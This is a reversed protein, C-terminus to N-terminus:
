SFFLYFGDVFYIIGAVGLALSIFWLMRKKVLVAITSLLISLQLFIVARGFGESHRKSEKQDDELGKAVKTIDDKEKGYKKIKDDYASIRMSLDHSYASDKQKVMSLELNEKQMECLYQKISKSQYYAWQDSAKTQSLVSKNSYGAGKFTSLTACVAIVVTTVPVLGLWKAKNEEAM